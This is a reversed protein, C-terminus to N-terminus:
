AKKAHSIIADNQSQYQMFAKIKHRYRIHKSAETNEYNCKYVIIQVSCYAYSASYHNKSLGRGTQSDHIISFWM